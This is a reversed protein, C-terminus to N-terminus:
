SNVSDLLFSTAATIALEDAWNPELHFSFPNYTGDGFSGTAPDGIWLSHIPFGMPTTGNARYILQNSENVFMVDLYEDKMAKM